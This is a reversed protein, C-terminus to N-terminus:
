TNEIRNRKRFWFVGAVGLMVLGVAIFEAQTAKMGLLEYPDNVRIKEIFFREIGNLILYVSFLVGPVTIKKRMFWLAFFLGIGMIAEYLPTPFVPQALFPTEEFNCFPSGCDKNVNNPYDYSWLWSPLGSLWSPVPDTNVIGWDGDGAIHCGIRGVGYALMLGPACADIVHTITLKNKRAYFIVAISGFILGGYMTLGSFSLLAGIPDNLFGSPHELIDFIKAGLLGAGAAILTMNGVHEHPQVVETVIEEKPYKQKEKRLDLYRMVTLLIAGLLGGVLSGKLSLIYGQTDALFGDFDMAVFLIKYGLVFGMIAGAIFDAPQVKKGKKVKRSTSNVLGLSQKRKLEKAFLWACLLFAIAVFFGFSQFMKLFSLKIGFLDEFAYYLNPYM